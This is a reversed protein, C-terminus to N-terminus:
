RALGLAGSPRFEFSKESARKRMWPALRPLRRPRGAMGAKGEGEGEQEQATRCEKKAGAALTRIGLRAEPPEVGEREM